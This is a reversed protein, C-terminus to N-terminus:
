EPTLTAIKARLNDATEQLRAESAILEPSKKYGCTSKLSDLKARLEDTMTEEAHAGLFDSVASTVSHPKEPSSSM